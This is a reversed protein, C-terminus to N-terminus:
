ETAYLMVRSTLYSEPKRQNCFAHVIQANKALEDRIEMLREERKRHSIQEVFSRTDQAFYRQSDWVLQQMERLLNELRSASYNM